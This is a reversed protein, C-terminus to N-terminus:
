LTCIDRYVASASSCPPTLNTFSDLCVLIINWLLDHMLGYKLSVSSYSDIQTITPFLGITSYYTNSHLYTSYSAIDSHYLLAGNSHTVADECYCGKQSMNFYVIPNGTDWCLSHLLKKVWYGLCNYTRIYTMWRDYDTGRRM